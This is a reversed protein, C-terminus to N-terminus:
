SAQLALVEMSVAAPTMAWARADSRASERHRRQLEVQHNGPRTKQKHPNSYWAKPICKAIIRRSPLRGMMM